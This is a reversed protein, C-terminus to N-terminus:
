NEWTVVSRFKKGQEGNLKVGFLVFLADSLDSYQKDTLDTLDEVECINRDAIDEVSSSGMLYKRGEWEQVSFCGVESMCWLKKNFRFLQFSLDAKYIVFCNNTTM